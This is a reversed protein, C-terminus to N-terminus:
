KRRKAAIVLQGLAIGGDNCPVRHHSFVEFNNKELLAEVRETLYKNQFTGGSLVVKNLATERRIKLVVKLVTYIITNHFKTAMIEVPTRKKIDEILQQFMEAFSIVEGVAIEYRSSVSGVTLAELHMPAEAHYNAVTCVDLLAAVADFLRGAGSSLPVNINKDIAEIIRDLKKEEMKNLFPIDLLKIHPGFVQYLYSVATRWPEEVAKDGGPLPIYRFHLYREFGELDCILFESGWIHGDEGLGTGDFSVGIVKEDLGHEAICSAIHAHHHQVALKETDQGLVYKSSLYDPHLDHVMLEPHFRFLRKFKEITETYFTFTEINKLDGIHQSLIAQQGKGICFCNVLEAGTALIGDVKLSTKVPSPVYGRSRRLVREKGAIVRVVSDDTRNYIERNYYIVADAIDKFVLKAKDEDTVIPEDALNGSTLVLAPLDTKEFLLYHFPMYPLFAGITNLGQTVSAALQKKMQLLVIPRRWSTLSEEEISNVAAYQQIAGINRFLVAFPKGERKKSARLRSVAADDLANCMLHFGGTGKLAIIKGNALMEAASILIESTINTHKNDAVMQYTPGCHNCALPQAHFRRDLINNYEEWCVQCMEFPQMTTNGRDYPLDKIITFRPGCNTCNILPYSLRHPQTAMDKLCDDCVAIDPSIGTITHSNDESQVIAFGSFSQLGTEVVTINELQAAGPAGKNIGDLFSKIDNNEGQAIIEVGDTINKVTGSINYKQAIRYVYPRFGVGQVLGEVKIKFAAM